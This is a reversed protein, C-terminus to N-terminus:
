FLNYKLRGRNQYEIPIAQQYEVMKRNILTGQQCGLPPTSLYDKSTNGNLYMYNAPTFQPKETECNIWVWALIRGYKDDQYRDYELWVQHNTTLQKLATTAQDYGSKGREPANIGILRVTQGTQLKFTDGDQYDQIQGTKPFITENDYYNKLNDLKKLGFISAFILGPILIAPVGKKLWDQYSNSKSSM